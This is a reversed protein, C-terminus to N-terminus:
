ATLTLGPAAVPTAPRAESPPPISPPVPPPVRTEVTSPDDDEVRQDFLQGVVRVVDVASSGPPPAYGALTFRCTVSQNPLLLTGVLDPCVPTPPGGPPSEDTLETLFVPVVGPNTVIAQFEVPDGQAAATESDTFVGDTDADNTKVVAIAPPLGESQLNWRLDDTARVRPGPTVCPVPSPSLAPIRPCPPVCTAPDPDACPTGNPGPTRGRAADFIVVDRHDLEAPLRSAVCARSAGPPLITGVLEPCIPTVAGSVQDVDLLDTVYVPVSSTNTITVRITVLQGQFLPIPDAEKLIDVSLAEQAAAPLVLGTM